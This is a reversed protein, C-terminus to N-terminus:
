GRANQEYFTFDIHFLAALLVAKWTVDMDAPVSLGFTDADTFAERLFGGWQKSIQGVVTKQDGSLIDFKVDGFSGFAASVPSKIKFMVTGATDKIFFSPTMFAFEKDIMAMVNGEPVQVMVQQTCCDVNANLVIAQRREGDFIRICFPRNEGFFCLSLESTDEAAFYVLQGTESYIEYRNNREWGTFIELMEKKQKVLFQRAHFLPELGPTISPIPPRYQPAPATFLPQPQPGPSPYGPPAYSAPQPAPPYFSVNPPQSSYQAMQIDNDLLFLSIRAVELHSHSTISSIQM